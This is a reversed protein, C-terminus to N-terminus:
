RDDGAGPIGSERKGALAAYLAGSVVLGVAFSVDAGDMAESLPGRYYSTSIFPIMAALGIFYSALGRWSWRGYIGQDDFIDRLVYRGKRILYFDVLNVATWPVLFYLMLLIFTNFSNLYNHPLSLAAVLVVAGITIVVAARLRSTPQEQRFADLGSVTTLMAGYTNVGMISILAFASVLVVVPGFGPAIENGAQLLGTVADTGPLRSGLFAGLSMLWVASGAAGAYTWWIVRRADADVPLYRSYDSVYVAYSIQYGAAAAFTALFSTWPSSAAPAAAPLDWWLIVTGATLVGFVAILIWTLARQVAHILDHGVLALVVSVVSLVPYWFRPGGAIVRGLGDAALIVNFVNFGVYVLVVAAFPVVAGRVGFQARSQIMQPLGMRPGQNAHVAMFFTGFCAGLVVAAVSWGVSLGTSPGIFGIVLTTLVFNGSFWFPGQHWVQRPTRRHTCPRHFANRARRPPPSQSSPVPPPARSGRYNPRSPAPHAPRYPQGRPPRAALFPHRAAPTPSPPRPM